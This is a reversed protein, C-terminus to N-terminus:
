IMALCLQIRFYLWFEFAVFVIVLAFTLLPKIFHFNILNNPMCNLCMQEHLTYLNLLLVTIEFFFSVVLLDASAIYDTEDLHQLSTQWKEASSLYHPEMLVAFLIM